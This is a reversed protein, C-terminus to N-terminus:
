FIKKIYYSDKKIYNLKILINVSNSDPLPVSIVYNIKNEQSYNEIWKRLRINLGLKRFECFTYSFIIHAIKDIKNLNIKNGSYIELWIFSAIQNTNKNVFCIIKENFSLSKRLCCIYDINDKKIKKKLLKFTEIDNNDIIKFEFENFSNDSDYSIEMM